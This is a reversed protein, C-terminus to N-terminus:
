EKAEGGASPGKVEKNIIQQHNGWIKLLEVQLYDSVIASAESSGTQSSEEATLLAFSPGTSTRM